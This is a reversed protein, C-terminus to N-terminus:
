QENQKLYKLFHPKLANEISLGGRVTIVQQGDPLYLVLQDGDISYETTYTEGNYELTFEDNM